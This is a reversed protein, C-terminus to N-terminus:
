REKVRETLAAIREDHRAVVTGMRVVTQETRDHRAMLRREMEALLTRVSKGNGNSNGGRHAYLYRGGLSAVGGAGFMGVLGLTDTTATEVAVLLLGM